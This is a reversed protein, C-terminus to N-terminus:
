EADAARTLFDLLVANFAEPQEINCLHSASEIVKLEAGPISRQITQAMAVPTGADHEGVVVLTPCAIANLRMTTDITPVAAGCGTYGDPSTRRIMAGIKAMVDPRAARFPSTFWRELTAEVLPEMGQARVTAIREEWIRDTGEPYRSTTDCLVLSAVRQRHALAFEQAVMGGLSIGVLHAREIGIATFLGDIDGVLQDFGYPPAPVSSAGHGRIDFRLVRFRERLVPLQEDWMHLDCALAHCLVVWSGEGEIECHIDVGNARVRM